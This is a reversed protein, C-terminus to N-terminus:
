PNDKESCSLHYGKTTVSPYISFFTFHETNPRQESLLPFLNHAFASSTSWHNEILGTTDTELSSNQYIQQSVKGWKKWFNKNYYPIYLM